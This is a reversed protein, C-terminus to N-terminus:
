SVLLLQETLAAVAPHNWWPRLKTRLDRVRQVGTEYEVAGLLHLAQIGLRCAQDVEGEDVCVTAQDALYCARQKAADPDLAGIAETLAAHATEPQALRIHVQGKFGALRSRDYYDFWAPAAEPTADDLVAEAAELIVLSEAPEHAWAKTMAELAMAWSRVIPDDPVLRKAQDLLQLAATFDGRSRPLFSKNGLVVAQLPRDQAEQAAELADQYYPEAQSPRGLDFFSMRGALMTIESAAGALSRRLEPDAARRWFGATTQAHQAVDDILDHAAVTHYMRRYAATVSELNHITAETIRLPREPWRGAFGPPPVVLGGAHQLESFGTPEWLGLEEASCEYLLCLLRPYPPRPRHRGTEWNYIMTANVGLPREGLRDALDCLERVVDQLSWARRLRQARLRENPQWRTAASAGV